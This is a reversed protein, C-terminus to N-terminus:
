ADLPLASRAQKAIRLAVERNPRSGGMAEFPIDGERQAVGGM